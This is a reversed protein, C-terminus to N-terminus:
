RCSMIIIISKTNKSKVLCQSIPQNNELLIFTKLRKKNKHFTKEWIDTYYKKNVFQIKQKKKVGDSNYFLHIYHFLQSVELASIAVCISWTCLTKWFSVHDGSVHPHISPPRVFDQSNTPQKTKYRILGKRTM